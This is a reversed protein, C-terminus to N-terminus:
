HHHTPEILPKKFIAQWDFQIVARLSGYGQGTMFCIYRCALKDFRDLSQEIDKFSVKGDFGRKDLHAFKRDVLGEISKNLVQLDDIDKRIVQASLTRGDASLLRFTQPQWYVHGPLKPYTKLYFDYTIQSACIEMQKMLRLLAISEKDDKLHRRIGLAARPGYCRLVFSCFYSGQNRHIWDKNERCIRLFDSFMAADNITEM